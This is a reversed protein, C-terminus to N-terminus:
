AQGDPELLVKLHESSGAALAEFASAGEQLPVHAIYDGPVEGCLSVARAFDEDSYCYSGRVQREQLILGYFSFPSEDDHLGVFVATGGPALHTIAGARTVEIGVTDFTVDVEGEPVKGSEIGLAVAQERRTDSIDIVRVRAGARRAAWAVFFGIAGGGFVLVDRELLPGALEVAHVAVALPEALAGRWSPLGEPLAHLGSLPVVVQQALAGPRNLGILERNPCLYRRGSRCFRCSGDTILPHIAVARGQWDDPGEIVTGAFEHGLLLPPVRRDAMGPTGVYGELDSGCVGCAAVEIIAEGPGPSPADIERMEMRRREQFMLAQVGVGPTM